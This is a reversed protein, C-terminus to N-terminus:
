VSAPTENPAVWVLTGRCRLGGLCEWYGGSPYSETAAEISEFETGDVSKCPLCTVGDLLESAYLAGGEPAGDFVTRRASNQAQMLVGGLQDQLYSDSLGELHERVRAAVEEYALGTGAITIAKQSAAQSISGAMVISQASARTVIEDAVLETDFPDLDVGQAAAEAVAEAGATEALAFMADSMLQEGIVPADLSALQDLTEAEEIAQVLADIHATKVQTKWDDVLTAQRTTWAQEMGDWDVSAKVEHPLPNRRLTRGGVTMAAEPQITAKAKIRNRAAPRIPTIKDGDDTEDNQDEGSKEPLDGEARIYAELEPDTTLAGADILAKLDAVSYRKDIDDPHADAAAIAIGTAFLALGAIFICAQVPMPLPPRRRLHAGRM